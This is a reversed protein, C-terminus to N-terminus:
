ILGRQKALKMFARGKTRDLVHYDVDRITFYFRKESQRMYVADGKEASIVGHVGWTNWPYETKIKIICMNHAGGGILAGSYRTGQEISEVTGIFIPDTYRIKCGIMIILSLLIILRLNM